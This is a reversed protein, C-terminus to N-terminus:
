VRWFTFRVYGQTPVFSWNPHGSIYESLDLPSHIDIAGNPAKALIAAAPTHQLSLTWLAILLYWMLKLCKGDECRRM